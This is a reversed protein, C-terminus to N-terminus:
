AGQEKGEQRRVTEDGERRGKGGKEGLDLSFIKAQDCRGRM